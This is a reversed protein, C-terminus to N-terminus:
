ADPRTAGRPTECMECALRDTRKNEFTCALCAWTHTAAGAAGGTVHETVHAAALAATTRRDHPADQTPAADVTPKTSWTPTSSSRAPGPHLRMPDGVLRGLSDDLLADPRRCQWQSRECGAKRM